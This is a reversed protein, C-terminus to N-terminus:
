SVGPTIPSELPKKWSTDLFGKLLLEVPPHDAINDYYYPLRIRGDSGIIFLASMQMADQGVPPLEPKWGKAKRVRVNGSWVRWSLVTQTLTGREIRYARYIQRQPDCLCHLGPAYQECFAKAAEPTGQSVVVISMGAKEFQHKREILESLMEKCQPCGFHRIFALLLTKGAWLSSLRVTEGGVTQVDLDPAPENFKLHTSKKAM